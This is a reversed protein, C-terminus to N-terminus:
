LFFIVIDNEDFLIIDVIKNPILEQIKIEFVSFPISVSFFPHGKSHQGIERIDVFALEKSSSLLNKTAKATIKNQM